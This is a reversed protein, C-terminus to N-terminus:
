AVARVWWDWSFEQRTHISSYSNALGACLRRQFVFLGRCAVFCGGGFHPTRETRHRACARRRLRAARFKPPSDDASRQGGAHECIKHLAHAEEAERARDGGYTERLKPRRM